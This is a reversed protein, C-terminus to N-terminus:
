REEVEGAGMEYIQDATFVPCKAMDAAGRCATEELSLGARERAERLTGSVDSVDQPPAVGAGSGRPMSDAAHAIRGGAMIEAHDAM